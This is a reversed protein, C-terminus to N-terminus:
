YICKLPILKSMIQLYISGIILLVGYLTRGKAIVVIGLTLSTLALLYGFLGGGYSAILLILGIRAYRLAEYEQSGKQYPNKRTTVIITIIIAIALSLWDAINM